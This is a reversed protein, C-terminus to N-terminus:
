SRRIGHVFIEARDAFAPGIEDEDESGVLDIRTVNPRHDAPMEFLVGVDGNGRDGQGDGLATGELGDADIRVPPDFLEPFFRSRELRNGPFAVLSENGHSVINEIGADQEILQVPVRFGGAAPVIEPPVDQGLGAPRPPDISIIKPLVDDGIGVALRIVPPVHSGDFAIEAGAHLQVVRQGGQIDIMRVPGQPRDFAMGHRGLHHGVM